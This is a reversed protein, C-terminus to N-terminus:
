ELCKLANQIKLNSEKNWRVTEYQTNRTGLAYYRDRGEVRLSTVASRNLLALAAEDLLYRISVYGDVMYDPSVVAEAGTESELAKMAMKAMFGGAGKLKKQEFPQTYNARERIRETTELVLTSNDDLMLELTSGSPIILSEGSLYDLFDRYDQNEPPGELQEIEAKYRRAAGMDVYDELEDEDMTAVAQARIEDPFPFYDIVGIKVALYREDGKAIASVSGINDGGSFM